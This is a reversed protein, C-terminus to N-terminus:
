SPRCQRHRAGEGNICNPAVNVFRAAFSPVTTFTSMVCDVRATPHEPEGRSAFGLSLLM